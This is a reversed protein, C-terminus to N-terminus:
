GLSKITETFLRLAAAILDTRKSLYDGISPKIEADYAKIVQSTVDRSDQRVIALVRSDYDGVPLRRIRLDHHLRDMAKGFEEDQQAILIRVLTKRKVPAGEVFFPDGTEYPVVIEDMLRGFSLDTQLLPKPRDPIEALVLFQPEAPKETETETM